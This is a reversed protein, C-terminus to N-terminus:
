YILLLVVSNLSKFFYKYLSQKALSVNEVLSIGTFKVEGTLCLNYNGILQKLQSCSEIPLSVSGDISQWQWEGSQEVVAVRFM